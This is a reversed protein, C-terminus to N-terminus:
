NERKLGPIDCHMAPDVKDFHRGVRLSQIAESVAQVLEVRVASDLCAGRQVVHVEEAANVPRGLEQRPM